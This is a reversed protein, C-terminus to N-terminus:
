GIEQYTAGRFVRWDAASAGTSLHALIDYRKYYPKPVFRETDLAMDKALVLVYKHKEHQRERTWGAPKGVTPFWEKLTGPFGERKLMQRMARSTVRRGEPTYYDFRGTPRYFRGGKTGRGVGHGIYDWGAAQYVTGLEGAAQDSYAFFAGIREDKRTDHVLARCARMILKSAAGDAHSNKSVIPACAGRELCLTRPINEAGCFDRAQLSPGAGFCVAGIVKGDPRILGYYYRGVQPMSQLWEYKLIIKAAQARDIRQVSCEKLTYRGLACGEKALMEDRIKRQHCIM